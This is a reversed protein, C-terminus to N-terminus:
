KQCCDEKTCIMNKCVGFQEQHHEQGTPEIHIVIDYVSSISKKINEEAKNAIQHAQFLTLNGDVEIDLAIMYMNGIQRSRVRHPNLAGPTDEVAKFIHQYIDEDQVGDMLGINSDIFINVASKIIVLSIILGTIVDLIPADLVYTFVLGLLVSISILVDNRMNIANAIILSSNIKKGKSYQYWALLLKGLISLLTVYIAIKGPIAREEGSMLVQVSSIFMQIGAYFIILSLTKTAIGEAKKYGYPYKTTPPKNVITATFIMVISIVVDTASDIGDSLVAMSGAFLGIIIKLTSLILNGIASVWSTILLTKDTKRSKNMLSGSFKLRYLYM